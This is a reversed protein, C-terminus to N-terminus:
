TDTMYWCAYTDSINLNINDHMSAQISATSSVGTVLTGNLYFNRSISVVPTATKLLKTVQAVKDTCSGSTESSCILWLISDNLVLKSYEFTFQVVKGQRFDAYEQVEM